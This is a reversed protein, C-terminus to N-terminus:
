VTLADLMAAFSAPRRLQVDCDQHAIVRVGGSLGLTIPDVLIDVGSWFGILLDAWNGFLIASCVGSSSGKTLTSSVQNSVAGQYGNLQNSEDWVFKGTNTTKETTKLKGRVKANTLYALNGVDANPVAVATELGVIHAWTPALGNTGGAVSGIGATAVIGTPQGSAGTGHIAAQDIGLALAFAIDDRILAEIDLSSQQMMKRTVSSYVALDKLRLSVLDVNLNSEAADATETASWTATMAASKRPIDLDGVLDSFVTAGLQRVLMANRLVDIFSQSALETQVLRGAAAATGYALAARQQPMTLVDTPVRVGRAERGTLRIAADSAEFEFRAAEQARRDTPNAMARVVNMFSFRKAEKETLGIKNAAALRTEADSGLSELVLGNFAAVSMGTKIADNAKDGVNFKAGAASIEAIRQREAKLVDDINVPAAPAPENKIVAEMKPARETELTVPKVEEGAARNIGVTPDAPVSVISIEHPKWDTVRYTDIGDSASELRMKRIEYGVSINSLEGDRVRALIENAREAIGFRVTARGKGNELRVEEIVGVQDDISREHDVLLPARGSGIFSLDVEGKKHGLIEIGWWRQYPEESSFSLEITREDAGAVARLIEGARELRAPIDKTEM